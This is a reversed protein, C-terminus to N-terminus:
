GGYGKASESAGGEVEPILIEALYGIIVERSIRFTRSGRGRGKSRAGEVRPGESTKGESMLRNTM